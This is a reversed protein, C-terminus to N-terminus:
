NGSELNRNGINFVLYFTATGDEVRFHPHDIYQDVFEGTVEARDVEGIEYLNIGAIADKVIRFSVGDNLVNDKDWYDENKTLAYSYGIQWHSITYAGNYLTNELSSGFAEGKSEVFQQNAPYFSPFSMLKLFYPVPMELKVKLTYPDVATVALDDLPAEGNIIAEFNAIQATEILLQYPARTTPDALRRWSYVYDDATVPEGNSWRANEVLHFIYETGDESIDWSSAGAAIPMDNEDLKVLGELVNAMVELSVTDTAKSIDMTPIDSAGFLRIIKKGDTINETTAKDYTYDGGFQHFVIGQIRPSVLSARARQYLPVVVCDDAVLLKEASQLVKTRTALDNALEGSKARKIYEDYTENSYGAVNYAGGTIWMDLFTMADPYDPGWGTYEIDFKGKDALAIKNTFPQQILVVELGELNDQLQKKIHESITKAMESDFTLLRIKVTEFNLEQKASQWYQKASEVDFHNWGDPYAARFDVGDASVALGNPVFYDIPKSGNSMINDTIFAKDFALAIARRANVNQLLEDALIDRGTSSPKTTASKTQDTEAIVTSTKTEDDSDTAKTGSCAVFSVAIIMMLLTMIIKKICYKKDQKSM